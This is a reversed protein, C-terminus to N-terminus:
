GGTSRCGPRTVRTWRFSGSLLNRGVSRNRYVILIAAALCLRYVVFVSYTM